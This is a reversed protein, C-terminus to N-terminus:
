EIQTRMGNEYQLLPNVYHCSLCIHLVVLKTVLRLRFLYKKKDLQLQRRQSVDVSIDFKIVVVVM